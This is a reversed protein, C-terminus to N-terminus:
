RWVGMERTRWEDIDIGAIDYVGGEGSLGVWGLWGIGCVWRGSMAGISVSDSVM